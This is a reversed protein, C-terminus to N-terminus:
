AEVGLEQEILQKRHINAYYGGADVLRAHNGQEVIRGHELVLILDADQITSVRHSVMIVAMEPRDIRAQRLNGLILEETKTDVASLSDDLILLKPERVWARALALRQKQGGSLTVGREGIVTEFGEKFGVVNDYVGSLKTALEVQERTAGPLGFAVNELISESFLFVDQPAYGIENRLNEKSYERIDRGDILIQGEQPDFLRPILNCLTSKGSGTAGIIGLKQGPELTFSIEQLAHTGTSPYVLGVEKFEVRAAEIQHKTAPFEIESREDLFDNIRQQSAAARQTLSTVWGLSIIPFTLMNVYIIFEAINGVSLTGDIVKEAGIWVLLATSLGVLVMVVPFFYSNLRILGMSRGHYERSESEFKRGFDRERTYAMTLRIGSYVEQTFATLKSMQEQIRDSRKLVRSEVYYILFSLLPLPLLTYLTLEPNVTMMTIVVVIMLSITNITYMIGPGLYMRVRGVDETIRAMLDGTRNKRYFSLSLEQYHAYMDNRLDFEVKRSMVILTQRMLFMFLGRILAFSITLISFVVLSTGILGNVSSRVAFGEHLADVKILDGVLDIASRVVQPPYIGFLNALIVCLTGFLLLGKYRWIYKNLRKLAKM